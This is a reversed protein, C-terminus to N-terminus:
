KLNDSMFDMLEINTRLNVAYDRPGGGKSGSLEGCIDVAGVAVTGDMLRSLMAKVEELTFTGQSWDTRAYDPSLIDKDLAVYVREGRREELWGAPFQRPCGEPGITLVDKLLPNEDQMAKVWSGCSLVGEFAPDQNDPHHDLLVLHFPEKQHLALLHSMYHYDGSDIWRVSDVEVAMRGELAKRADADCYCHTGDIDTCDILRFPKGHLYDLFGQDRLAGSFNFVSVFM